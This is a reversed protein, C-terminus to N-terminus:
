GEPPVDPGGAVAERIRKATDPSVMSIVFYAIGAILLLKLVFWAISLLLGIVGGAVGLVVNGVVTAIVVAVAVVAVTRFM